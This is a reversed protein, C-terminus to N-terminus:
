QGCGLTWHGRTGSRRGRERVAVGADVDIGAIREDFADLGVRRPGHPRLHQRADASEAGEDLQRRAVALRDQDRPGVADARLELKRERQVAVVRDPDIKDRHADVVDQDLTGLRQEEEVVEDALAEVDVDGGIDHLADRLPALKGAARQDAPLRGLM